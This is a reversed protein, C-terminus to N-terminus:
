YPNFGESHISVHMPFNQSGAFDHVRQRACGVLRTLIFLHGHDDAPRVEPVHDRQHARQDRLLVGVGRQVALLDVGHARVHPRPVQGLVQLDAHHAAGYFIAISEVDPAGALVEKLRQMVVKNRGQILIEQVWTDARPLEIAAEAEGTEPDATKVQGTASNGLDLMQSILM